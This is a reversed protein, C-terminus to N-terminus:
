LMSNVKKVRKEHREGIYETDIFKQIMSEPSVPHSVRAGLAIFNAHNHSKAMEATYLDHVLACRINKIKNAAISIGIGTGCFLIGFDFTKKLFHQCAKRAIDPYDVSNHLDVGLNTIAHGKKTLYREIRYKLTVGGHDNALLINM